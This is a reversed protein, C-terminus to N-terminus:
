YPSITLNKRRRTTRKRPSSGGASAVGAGGAGGASASSGTSAAIFEVYTSPVGDKDHVAPNALEYGAQGKINIFPLTAADAYVEDFTNYKKKFVPYRTKLTALAKQAGSVLGDWEVHLAVDLEYNYDDDTPDGFNPPFLVKQILLINQIDQFYGNVDHKDPILEHIYVHKCDQNNDTNEASVVVYLKGDRRLVQNTIFPCKTKNEKHGKTESAAIWSRIIDTNFVYNDSGDSISSYHVGDMNHIIIFKPAAPQPGLLTFAGKERAESEKILVSIGYTIGFAAAVEASIPRGGYGTTVRKKKDIKYKDIGSAIERLISDAKKKAKEDSFTTAKIFARYMPLLHEYRYYSAVKDKFEGELRRFTPSLCTLLSNVICDNNTGRCTKILFGDMHILPNKLKEDLARSTTTHKASKHLFTPRAKKWEEKHKAVFATVIGEMEGERSPAKPGVSPAVAAAAATKVAGAAAASSGGGGVAGELVEVNSNEGETESGQASAGAAASGGGGVAGELVEINSNEGEDKSGADKSGAAAAAAASEALAAALEPDANELAPTKCLELMKLIPKMEEDTENFTTKFSSDDKLFFIPEYHSGYYMFLLIPKEDQINYICQEMPIRTNWPEGATGNLFVARYGLYQTILMSVLMDTTTKDKEIGNFADDILSQKATANGPTPALFNEAGERLEAIREPKMFWARYLKTFEIKADATLLITLDRTLLLFSAFFCNGGPDAALRIFTGGTAAPGIKQYEIKNEGPQNKVGMYGPTKRVNEIFVPTKTSSELAKVKEKFSMRCFLKFFFGNM